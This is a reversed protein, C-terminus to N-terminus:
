EYPTKGDELATTVSHNRLYSATAVVEAWFSNPLHAHSMMSRVSEMLTWNMREAIWNPQPTYAITLSSMSYTM